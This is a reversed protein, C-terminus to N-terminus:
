AGRRRADRASIKAKRQERDLVYHHHKCVALLNALRDDRQISRLIIHHPDAAERQCRIPGWGNNQILYECQGRSRQLLQFRRADWDDDFLIERGDPTVYSKPSKFNRTRTSQVDAKM